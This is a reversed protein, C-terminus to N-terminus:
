AREVDVKDPLKKKQDSVIAQLSIVFTSGRGPHTEVEITGGHREIIEKCIALGLGTGPAGSERASRGRFFREFIHPLDEDDIGPGSDEVRIWVSKRGDVKSPGASITVKGEAPTYNIANVLLNTLVQQVQMPDALVPSLKSNLDAMVAIRREIAQAQCGVIAQHIAEHVDVPEFRTPIKGTDLASLDLLDVILTTLRDTERDLIDLYSHRREPKGHKLLMLYTKITTLPTKLEHSVSSIINSKLRDVEKLTSIDSQVGVFGTTDGNSTQIPALTLNTDIWSKDKRVLLLEGSWPRGERIAQRLEKPNQITEVPDRWLEVSRGKLEEVSFGSLNAMALNAYLLEGERNTFFVGEGASDLVAQTRDKEAHLEATQKDVEDALKNAHEQLAGYLRINEVVPAVQNAITQLLEIDNKPYFDDPDRRGLLWIGITKERAVLPLALRVWDHTDHIDLDPPRYRGASDLLPAFEDSSRPIREIDVSDRYAIDIEGDTYLCLASQRILLSPAIDKHLMDTLVEKRLASPVRRAFVRLIDDPDYIAGYALRDLGRQFRSLLPPAALAFAVSVSLLYFTRGASSEIWQEGFLLIIIFITPIILAFSYVSILRNARFELAGLHRKYIAYTYSIPLVPLAIFSLGLLVASAIELDLPGTAIIFLVGPGFALGTCALMLRAAVRDSPAAWLGLARLLLLSFSITIAAILAYLSTGRGPLQFLELVALCAALIYLIRVVGRGVRGFMPSPVILHLHIFVPVMLWQLLGQILRSAGIHWNAISGLISWLATLFMTAILLKWGLDRKRVFILVATGAAWFPFFWLTVFTRSVRDQWTPEKITLELNRGDATVIPSVVDGPEYGAFPISLRDARYEDFTLDGLQVLISDVEILEQASDSVLWGNSVHTFQIGPYPTLVVFPVTYFVYVAFVAVSILMLPWDSKQFHRNVDYSM